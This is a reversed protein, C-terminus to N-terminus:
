VSVGGLDHNPVRRKRKNRKRQLAWVDDSFTPDSVPLAERMPKVWRGALFQACEVLHTNKKLPKEKVEMGRARQSPTLDEWKYDKIAEYTQQCERTLAFRKQDILTGLATIRNEEVSMGLQYNFGLRSWQDILRNNSGRDRQTVSNPDAVRWQPKAKIQAEIARFQKAHEFISLGKQQYEKVGVLRRKDRDVLVWLGATPSETGPDMSMWFVSGKAYDRIPEVVHSDWGWNEYIQGAFDDFQCLVYRRVWPEPYQLMGNVYEPPLYPNDFTTSRFWETNPAATRPDVFRKYIWNHGAPNFAMWMGRRQVQGTYGRARAESTLDRQRVRSSMGLYTEEDFEDAEDWAIFGVNLSKHKQWDDISRFLVQSGNPFTFREYHGGVRTTQAPKTYSM